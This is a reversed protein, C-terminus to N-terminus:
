GRKRESEGGKVKSGEGGGEVKEKWRVGEVAKM